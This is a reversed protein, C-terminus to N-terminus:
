DTKYKYLVLLDGEQMVMIARKYEMKEFVSYRSPFYSYMRISEEDVVDGCNRFFRPDPRYKFSEDFKKVLSKKDDIHKKLTAISEKDLYNM